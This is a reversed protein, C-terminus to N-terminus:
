LRRRVYKGAKAITLTIAQQLMQFSVRQALPQPIAALRIQMSSGM